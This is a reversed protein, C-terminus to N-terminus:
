HRISFSFQLMVNTFIHLLCWFLWFDVLVWVVFFVCVRCNTIKRIARTFSTLSLHNATLAMKLFTLLFVQRSGDGQLCAFAVGRRNGWKFRVSSLSLWFLVCCPMISSSHIQLNAEKSYIVILFMSLIVVVIKNQWCLTLCSNVKYLFLEIALCPM